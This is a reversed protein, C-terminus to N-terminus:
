LFLMEMAQCYGTRLKGFSPFTEVFEVFQEFNSSSVGEVMREDEPTHVWKFLDSKLFEPKKISSRYTALQPNM